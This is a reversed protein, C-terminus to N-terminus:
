AVRWIAGAAGHREVHEHLAHNMVTTNLLLQADDSTPVELSKGIGSVVRAVTRDHLAVIEDSVPENPNVEHTTSLAEGRLIFVRFGHDHMWDLAAVLTAVHWNRHRRWLKVIERNRDGVPKFVNPQIEWILAVAREVDLTGTTEGISGPLTHQRGFANGVAIADGLESAVVDFSITESRGGFHANRSQMLIGDPMPQDDGVIAEVRRECGVAAAATLSSGAGIGGIPIAIGSALGGLVRPHWLSPTPMGDLWQPHNRRLYRAVVRAKIGVTDEPRLTAPSDVTEAIEGFVELVEDGLAVYLDYLAAKTDAPVGFADFVREIHPQFPM